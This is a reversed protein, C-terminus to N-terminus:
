LDKESYYGIHIDFLLYFLYIIFVTTLILHKSIFSLVKKRIKTISIHIQFNKPIFTEKLLFLFSKKLM